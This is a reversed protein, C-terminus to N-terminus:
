NCSLSYIAFGFLLHIIHTPLEFIPKDSTRQAPKTVRLNIQLIMLQIEQTTFNNRHKVQVLRHLYTM